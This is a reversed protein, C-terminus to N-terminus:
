CKGIFMDNQNDCISPIQKTVYYFVPNLTEFEKM